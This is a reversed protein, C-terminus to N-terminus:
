KKKLLDRIEELLVVDAAPAPPAAPAEEEKKKTKNIGKVVLFMVLAVILFDIVTNIFAGYQIAVEAATEVGDAGVEASKLVVKMQSFDVGGLFLGIIPSVIGGTFAASVKGFAAGMVFGIAIDILNGKM